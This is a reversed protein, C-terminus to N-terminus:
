PRPRLAIANPKAARWWISSWLFISSSAGIYSARYSNQRCCAPCRCPRNASHLGRLPQGKFRRFEMAAPKPSLDHRFLGFHDERNRSTTLGDDYLEYWVARGIFNWLDIQAAARALYDAQAQESGSGPPGSPVGFETLWIRKRGDGRSDMLKRIAQVGCKFTKTNPVGPFNCRGPDRGDSYPHLSLADFYGKAGADYMRRIFGVDAYSTGPAIVQLSSNIGKVARYAAQLMRTYAVVPDLHSNGELWNPKHNPDMLNPENWIEYYKIRDGAFSVLRKLFNAYDRPRKPAYRGCFTVNPFRKTPGSAAWCPSGTVVAMVDIRKRRAQDLFQSLINVLWKDWHAKGPADHELWDWHIDIRVIGAGVAKALDVTRAAPYTPIFPHMNVGLAPQEHSSTHRDISDGVSPSYTLGAFLFLSGAVKSVTSMMQQYCVNTSARSPVDM